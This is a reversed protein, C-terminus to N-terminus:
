GAREVRFAFSSGKQKKAVTRVIVGYNKPKISFILRKLREREEASKIKQSVSVKDSFPILVLNRGAITIESTIRPGKTSIPEKAIQVLLKQGSEFLETIKGHKNIDPELKFDQLPL